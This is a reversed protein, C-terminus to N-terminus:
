VPHDRQLFEILETLRTKEEGALYRQRDTAAEDFAVSARSIKERVGAIEAEVDRPLRVPRTNARQPRNRFAELQALSTPWEDPAPAIGALVQDRVHDVPVGLDALARLAACGDVRLL